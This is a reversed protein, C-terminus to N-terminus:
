SYSTRIRTYLFFPDNEPDLDSIQSIPELDRDIKHAQRRGRRGVEKRVAERWICLFASLLIRLKPGHAQEGM